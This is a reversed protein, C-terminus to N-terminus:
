LVKNKKELRELEQLKKKMERLERRSYTKVQPRGTKPKRFLGKLFQFLGVPRHDDDMDSVLGLKFLKEKRLYRSLTRIENTLALSIVVTLFIFFLIVGKRGFFTYVFNVLARTKITAGAAGKIYHEISEKFESENLSLMSLLIWLGAITFVGYLIIGGIINKKSTFKNKNKQLIEQELKYGM